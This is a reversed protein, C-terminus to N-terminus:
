LNPPAEDQIQVLSRLRILVRSEGQALSADVYYFKASLAPKSGANMSESDITRGTLRDKM